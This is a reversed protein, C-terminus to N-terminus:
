DTSAFVVSGPEVSLFFDCLIAYWKTRSPTALSSHLVLKTLVCSFSASKNVLSNGALSFLLPNTLFRRWWILLFQPTPPKTHDSHKADWHQHTKKSACMHKFHIYVM